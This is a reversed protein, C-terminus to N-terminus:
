WNSVDRVGLLRSDQRMDYNSPYMVCDCAEVDARILFFTLSVPVCKIFTFCELNTKM